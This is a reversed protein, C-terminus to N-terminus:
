ILPTNVFLYLIDLFTRSKDNNCRNHNKSYYTDDAIYGVADSPIWSEPPFRHKWKMPKFDNNTKGRIVLSFSFLLCIIAEQMLSINDFIAKSILRLWYISYELFNCSRFITLTQFGILTFLIIIMALINWFVFVM